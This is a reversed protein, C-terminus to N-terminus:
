LVEFVRVWCAFDALSLTLGLGAPLGFGSRHIVPALAPETTIM